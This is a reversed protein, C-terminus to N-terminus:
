IKKMAEMTEQCVTCEPDCYGDKKMKDPQFKLGKSYVTKPQGEEVSHAGDNINGHPATLLKPLLMVVDAYKIGFIDKLYKIM